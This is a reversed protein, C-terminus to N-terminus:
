APPKEGGGGWMGDAGASASAALGVAILDRPLTCRNAIAVGGARLVADRLPVGWHRELVSVATTVGVSRERASYPVSEEDFISGAEGAMKTPLEARVQAILKALEGLDAIELQEIGGHRKKGM